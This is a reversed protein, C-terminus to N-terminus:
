GAGRARSSGKGSRRRRPPTRASRPRRRSGTAPPPPQPTPDVPPEGVVVERTELPGPVAAEAVYRGPPVSPFRFAGNPSTVRTMTKAPSKLSITVGPMAAGVVDRLSGSVVSGDVTVNLQVSPRLWFWMEFDGGRRGDGSPLSLGIPQASATPQGFADGDLFARPNDRGWIFNGKLILQVLLRDSIRVNEKFLTQFLHGELWASCAKTPHWQIASGVASTWSGLLLPQYGYVEQFGWIGGDPEMSYPLYVVVQFNPRAPAPLPEGNTEKGPQPTFLDAVPGTCNVRIGGTLREVRVPSDNDIAKKDHLSEVGVVQIRPEERDRFSANFHVTQRSAPGRPWLEVEVRQRPNAPDRGLTWYCQALGDGTTRLDLPQDTLQGREGQSLRGNGEVVTFTVRAGEQPLGGNAARVELPDPLMGGPAAEQGDGGVYFLAVNRCLRDLAGQVTTAGALHTCSGPDYAVQAALSLRAHFELPTALSQDAADLLTATVTLCDPDGGSHTPPLTWWCSALGRADTALDLSAASSFAATRPDKPHLTGHTTAVAFHVKAGAVPRKGRTVGVALPCPLPKGPLAEQGDGGAPVFSLLETAAPFLRRCDTPQRFTPEPPPV